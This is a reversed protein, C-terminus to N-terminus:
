FKKSIAAGWVLSVESRVVDVDVSPVIAFGNSMEIEYGGGLRLLFNVSTDTSESGESSESAEKELEVGPAVRVYWEEIYYYIPLGFTFEMEDKVVAEGWIGLGIDSSIRRAYDLGISFNTGGGELGTTGGLFLGIDNKTEEKGASEEEQAYSTSVSFFFSLIFVFLLINMTRAINQM